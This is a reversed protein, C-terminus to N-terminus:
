KAREQIRLLDVSCVLTAVQGTPNGHCHGNDKGRGELSLARLRQGYPGFVAFAFRIFGHLLLLVGQVAITSGMAISEACRTAPARSEMDWTM